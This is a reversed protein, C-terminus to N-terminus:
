FNIICVHVYMCECYMCTCVNVTCVITHTYEINIYTFIWMTHVDTYCWGIYLAATFPCVAVKSKIARVSLLSETSGAQKIDGNKFDGFGYFHQFWLHWWFNCM